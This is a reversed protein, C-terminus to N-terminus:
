LSTSAFTRKTMSGIFIRVSLNLVIGFLSVVEDSSMGASPVAVGSDDEDWGFNRSWIKGPTPIPNNTPNKTPNDIEGTTEPSNFSHLPPGHDV